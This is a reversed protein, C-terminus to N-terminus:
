NYGNKKRRNLVRKEKKYEAVKKNTTKGFLILRRLLRADINYKKELDIYTAGEEHEIRLQSIFDQTYKMKNFYPNKSGKNNDSFKQLTDQGLVREKNYKILQSRNYDSITTNDTQNYLRDSYMGGLLQIWYTEKEILYEEDINNELIEFTFSSEGYKNYDEQLQTNYHNQNRLERFHENKRERLSRKTQGIYIKNTENNIIKYILGM